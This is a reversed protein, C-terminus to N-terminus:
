DLYYSVTAVIRLIKKPCCEHAGLSRDIPLFEFYGQNANKIKGLKSSSHKAFELAALEANRISDALMEPKIDNINDFYYRPGGGNSILIGQDYLEAINKEAAEM